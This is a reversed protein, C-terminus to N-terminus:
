LLILSYTRAPHFETTCGNTLNSEKWADIGHDVAKILTECDGASETIQKLNHVANMNEQTPLQSSFNILLNNGLTCICLFCNQVYTSLVLISQCSLFICLWSAQVTLCMLVHLQGHYCHTWAGSMAWTLIIRCPFSWTYSEILTTQCVCFSWAKRVVKVYKVHSVSIIHSTLKVLVSFILPKLPLLISFSRFWMRFVEKNTNYICGLTMSMSM